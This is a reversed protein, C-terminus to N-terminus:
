KDKNTLAFFGLAGLGLYLMSNNNGTTTGGGTGGGGTTNVVCRKLINDYHYGTPCTTGGGTGGGGTLIPFDSGNASFTATGIARIRDLASPEQRNLAQIMATIAALAAVCAMIIYYAAPIAAPLIGIGYHNKIGQLDEINVEPYTQMEIITAQPTLAGIGSEANRRMIGLSVWNKMNEVSVGAVKAMETVSSIHAGVKWQQTPKIDAVQNDLIFNYLVHHASADLYKNFEDKIGELRRCEADSGTTTYSDCPYTNSNCYRTECGERYPYGNISGSGFPILQELPDIGYAVSKRGVLYIGNKRAPKYQGQAAQIAELVSYLNEDIYGTPMACGKTSHLGKYIADLLYNEAKQWLPVYASDKETQQLLRFKAANLQLKFEGETATDYNFYDKGVNFGHVFNLSM